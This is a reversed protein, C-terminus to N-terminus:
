SMWQLLVSQWFSSGLIGSSRERSHYQYYNLNGNLQNNCKIPPFYDGRCRLRFQPTNWYHASNRWHTFITPPYIVVISYWIWTVHWNYLPVEMYLFNFFKEYMAKECGFSGGCCMCFFKMHFIRSFHSQFFYRAKKVLRYGVHLGKFKVKVM